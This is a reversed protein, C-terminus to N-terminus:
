DKYLNTLHRKLRNRSEVPLQGIADTEDNEVEDAFQKVERDVRIMTKRFRACIGCMGLHMWLKVRTMISLKKDLSESVIQSVEKCSFMAKM